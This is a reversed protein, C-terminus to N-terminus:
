WESDAKETVFGGKPPDWLEVARYSMTSQAQAEEQLRVAEARSQVCVRAPVASGLDILVAEDRDNLMVNRPCIDRHCYGKEHMSALAQLMHGAYRLCASESFFSPASASSAAVGGMAQLKLSIADQLSGQRYYPFLFYARENGDGEASPLLAFDVLPMVLSSRGYLLHQGKERLAAERQEGNQCLVAKVAFYGGSSEDQCLYVFSYGGEALLRLIRLSRGGVQIRRATCSSTLSSVFSSLLGFLGGPGGGGAATTAGVGGAAATYGAASGIGAAGGAGRGGSSSSSSSDLMRANLDAM